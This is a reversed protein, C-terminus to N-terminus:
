EAAAMVEAKASADPEAEGKKAKPTAPPEGLFPFLPRARDDVYKALLERFEAAWSGSAHKELHELAIAGAVVKRRTDNKRTEAKERASLNKLQAEIQKRKQELAAKKDSANLRAM